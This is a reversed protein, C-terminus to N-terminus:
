FDEDNEEEDAFPSVYGTEEREEEEDGYPDDGDFLEMRELAKEDAKTFGLLKSLLGM